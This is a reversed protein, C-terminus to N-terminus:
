AMSLDKRQNVCVHVYSCLAICVRSGGWSLHKKAYRSAWQSEQGLNMMRFASM